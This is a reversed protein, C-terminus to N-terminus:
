TSPPPTIKATGGTLPLTIAVTTGQGPPSSVEITGGHATIVEHAVALGMGMGQGVERTTFFPEFVRDLAEPAIGPGNDSILITIRGGEARTEITLTLGSPRAQVANRLLNVFVQCLEAAKCPFGPLLGYRRVVTADAPLQHSIVSLTREIEGNIDVVVEESEDIHSFGKLDAVIRAIRECGTTTQSILDDLDDLIFALKAKKAHQALGERTPVDVALGALTEAYLTVTEKLVEGYRHLSRLNSTIFGLPNNIEHAMGAALQGVAALKEQQLLRALTQKLEATREEVKRELSAALERYRGESLTLRRNSELLEDYSHNVVTTHIETTLMRKLNNTLITQVAANLLASLGSIAGERQREGEVVTAAVREGELTLPVEFRVPVAATTEGRAWLTEGDALALWARSAGGRVAGALLPGIETESILESVAREEGIVFSIGEQRSGDGM